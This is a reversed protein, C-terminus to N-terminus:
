LALAHNRFRCLAGAEAELIRLDALSQPRQNSKDKCSLNAVVTENSDTIVRVTGLHDRHLYCTQCPSSATAGTSYEAALQHLGDYVYITTGNATTRIIRNGEGDYFYTGVVTSGTSASTQRNEADYSIQYGDAMLQNGAADYNSASLQNNNANVNSQMSPTNGAPAIGTANSVWM